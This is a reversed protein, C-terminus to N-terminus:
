RVCRQIVAAAEQRAAQLRRARWTAAARTRRRLRRLVLLARERRAHEIRPHVHRRALAARVSSQVSLAAGERLREERELAERREKQASRRQERERVRAAHEARRALEEARQERRALNRAQRRRRLEEDRKLAGLRSDHYMGHFSTTFESGRAPMPGRVGTPGKALVAIPRGRPSNADAHLLLSAAELLSNGARRAPVLPPLPPRGARPSGAAARSSVLHGTNTCKVFISHNEAARPTGGAVVGNSAAQM